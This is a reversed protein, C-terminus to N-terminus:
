IAEPAPPDPQSYAALGRVFEVWGNLDDPKRVFTAQANKVQELVHPDASDSLFFVTLNNFQGSNKVWNLVELGNLGPLKMDLLFLDPLPHLKRDAFIGQGNLYAIAQEGQNVFHLVVAGEANAAAYRLLDRDQPDDEAVLVIKAKNGM